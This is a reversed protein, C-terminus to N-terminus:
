IHIAQSLPGRQHHTTSTQNTRVKTIMLSKLRNRRPSQDSQRVLYRLTVLAHYVSRQNQHGRLPNRRTSISIPRLARKTNRGHFRSLGFLRQIERLYGLLLQDWLYFAKRETWSAGRGACLNTTSGTFLLQYWGFGYWCSVARYWIPVHLQPLIPIKFYPVNRNISKGTKKSVQATLSPRSLLKQPPQLVMPMELVATTALISGQLSLRVPPPSRNMHPSPLLNLARPPLIGLLRLAQQSQILLSQPRPPQLLATQRKMPMMVLLVFVDNSRRTTNLAPYSYYVYLDAFLDDGDEPDAM